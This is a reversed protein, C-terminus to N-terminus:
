NAPAGGREGDLSYCRYLTFEYKSARVPEGVPVPVVGHTPNVRSGIEREGSGADTRALVFDGISAVGGWIARVRVGRDEAGKKLYWLVEPRAEIADGASVWITSETALGHSQALRAGLELGAAKGSHVPSRLADRVPGLGVCALVLAAVVIREVRQWAITRLSRPRVSWAWGAVIPLGVMSPMAYRPNGVGLAALVVLSLVCGIVLAGAIPPCAVGRRRAIWLGVLALSAPMASVLAVIPMAIVRAVQGADVGHWLFESVGQTVPQEGGSVMRALARQALQYLVWAGAGALAVGLAVWYVRGRARRWALACSALATCAVVPAGAPGKVLAMALM